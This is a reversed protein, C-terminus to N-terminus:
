ILHFSRREFLTEVQMTQHMEVVHSMKGKQLIMRLANNQITQLKSLNLASTHVYVVDAFDFHPLVLSKYLSLALNQDIYKRVRSIAGLRRKSKNCLISIHENFNLRPDMWVGLYKFVTVQEITKTNLKLELPQSARYYQSHFLM